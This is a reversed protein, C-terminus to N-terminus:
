LLIIKNIHKISIQIIKIICGSPQKNAAHLSRFIQNKKQLASKFILLNVNTFGWAKQRMFIICYLKREQNNTWKSSSKIERHSKKLLIVSTSNKFM